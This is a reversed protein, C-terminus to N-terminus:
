KKGKGKRAARRRQTRQRTTAAKRKARTASSPNPRKGLRRPRKKPASKRPKGNKDPHRVYYVKRRRPAHRELDQNAHEAAPRLRLRGSALAELMEKVSLPYGHEGGEILQALEAAKASLASATYRSVNLSTKKLQEPTLQLQKREFDRNWKIPEISFALTVKAM